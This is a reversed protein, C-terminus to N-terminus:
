EGLRYGRNVHCTYGHPNKVLYKQHYAEAPWFEKFAVVETVVKAGWDGSADVTRIVEAATDRQADSVYFIASRYQTGRDNGQQNRTTPNHMRFFEFLLHRYTLKAPDFVIKLSEAHGSRGMKVIEYNANPVDGGTYGVETELVGPIQRVLEEMGWFCGGALYATQTTDNM